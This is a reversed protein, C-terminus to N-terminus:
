KRNWISQEMRRGFALDLPTGTADSRADSYTYEGSIQSGGSFRENLKVVGAHYWSTGEPRMAVLPNTFGFTTFSNTSNVLAQQTLGLSNLVSSGPDSIFVPLNF